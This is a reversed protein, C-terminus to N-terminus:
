VRIGVDPCSYLDFTCAFVHLAYLDYMVALFTSYIEYYKAYIPIFSFWFHERRLLYVVIACRIAGNIYLAYLDNIVASSNWLIWM